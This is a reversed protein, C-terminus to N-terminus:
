SGGGTSWENQADQYTKLIASVMSSVSHNERLYQQAGTAVGRAMEPRDLLQQLKSRISLEDEPDFVVATKDAIILDDVGGKCGAVATGVSMAELLLPNFTTSPQPQVFIDGAALLPRWLELKPVITVIQALGLSTLLKRVKREGAGNGMMVLIFEYRDIALHKVARFLNEFDEVNDLLHTTVLSALRGVEGFCNSSESVFTGISMEEVRDTFGPYVKMVNAAISKAPVIIRACRKSSISVQQWQKQLSNVTLVYPLALQRSLRRVLAAKSECLCHLITPRFKELRELLIRRNQRWLLPIEFAPHKVVEVSPPVISDIGCDTGCILATPVSEAAFGVLLHKLFISYDSLTKASAILAPRVSKAKAGKSASDKQEGTM